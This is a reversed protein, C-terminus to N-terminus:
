YWNGFTRETKLTTIVPKQCSPCAVPAPVGELDQLQLTSGREMQFEYYRRTKRYLYQTQVDERSPGDQYIWSTESTNISAM